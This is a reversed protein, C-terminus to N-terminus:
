GNKSTLLEADIVGRYVIVAGGELFVETFTENEKKYYITLSEGSRTIVKTPSTVQGAAAAMLAAAV